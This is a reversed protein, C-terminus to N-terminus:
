RAPRDGTLEEVAPHTVGYQAYGAAMLLAEDANHECIVILPEGSEAAEAAHAFTNVAQQGLDGARVRDALLRLLRADRRAFRLGVRIV